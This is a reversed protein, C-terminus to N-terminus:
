DDERVSITMIHKKFRKKDEETPFDGIFQNEVIKDILGYPQGAYKLLAKIAGLQVGTIWYRGGM